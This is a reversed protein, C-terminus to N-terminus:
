KKGYRDLTNIYKEMISLFYKKEGIKIKVLTM